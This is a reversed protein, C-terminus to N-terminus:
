LFDEWYIGKGKKDQDAIWHRLANGGPMDIDEIRDYVYQCLHQEDPVSSKFLDTMGQHYYYVFDYGENHELKLNYKQMLEEIQEKKVVEIPDAKGTAKNLRKMGSIACEVAKKNFHDGWNRLYARMEKPTADYIDLPTAM